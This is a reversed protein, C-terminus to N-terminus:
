KEASMSGALFRCLMDQLLAGLELLQTCCHPWFLGTQVGLLQKKRYTVDPLPSFEFQRLLVALSMKLELLAFKYGICMHPGCIFPQYTYFPISSEDLFREPRFEEPRDWYAPNRHLAGISITVVTGQPIAYGCVVDDQAAERMIVPAPPYLRLTEKVVCTVYTLKELDQYTIPQGSGPLESMVEERAKQQIDPRQSLVLLIWSLTSATTEHGALMFTMVHDRLQLQSLGMGTEIDVASLLRELLDPASAKEANSKKEMADKKGDIMKGILSHLLSLSSEFKRNAESPIM